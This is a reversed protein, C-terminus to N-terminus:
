RRRIAEITEIYDTLRSALEFGVEPDSLDPDIWVESLRRWHDAGLFPGLEATPGLAERWRKEAAVLPAMTAENEAESRHEAHFGTEVAIGEGGDIHRRGMVQCEYHDRTPEVPGFWVKVSWRRDQIRCDVLDPSLLSRVADGVETFLEPEM